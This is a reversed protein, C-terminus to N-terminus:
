TRAAIEGVTTDATCKSADRSSAPTVVASAPEGVAAVRLRLRRRLILALFQVGVLIAALTGLSLLLALQQLLRVHPAFGNGLPAARGPGAHPARSAVAAGLLLGVGWTVAVIGAAIGVQRAVYRARRAGGPKRRVWCAVERLPMCLASLIYFMGGIAAGPLGVSM